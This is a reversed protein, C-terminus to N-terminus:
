SPQWPFTLALVAASALLVTATFITDRTRWLVVHRETRTPYAGFARADMSLAVREAHRIGSALLPVIYGWGRALRALPGRGGGQGRVRHAARIISLEYGFRPVFRYAALATYGIRYPVRLQQVAARVLDPGQTTLGGILALVLIAALRLATALGSILAGSHLTWDGIRVLATTDAVQAADVWVGFGVSLVVVALPVGLLLVAAARRTLRAGTLMVAYALALFITPSLLDRTFALLAMAPVVAGFKALPNLGHLWFRAPVPADAYPDVPTPETVPVIPDGASASAVADPDTQALLEAAPGAAIVEGDAVLVAHTAYEAILRRDHSVIVVTTGAQQLEQLMGLLEAARARDQGFTPEDLAIVAPRAILATGVSLRRKEGGSLLFPHVDAKATLGFRALMEAVREDIEADEIRQLRLGHALEDRVTGAVFQHEPNQFVFGAHAALVRPSARGVDIGDVLVTGRTPPVVGGLAQLLSTKGAGNAGMIVTFSGRAIDLHPADLVRAGRKEVVVDRATIAPAPVHAAAARTPADHRAAGGSVSAPTVPTPIVPTPIAPTRTTPTLVGLERLTEAHQQLTEPVPGDLLLRGDHDLVIVRTALDVAADVDHEVLVIARQEADRILEGLASYVDRVGQPDLNATPEDLVIVRSRLALACAIALRQRGGGSLLDPNWRRRSWLGARRLAQEARALVDSAPLRLNELAFAVEDLVTGTVLQSDPDQFVMSIETSLQAVPTTRTDRGAVQVSGTMTANEVSQPILGNLALTLTSKGSGSPGLLLVVEGPHVDFSVDRLAPHAAGEHTVSLDRVRLLPASPRM